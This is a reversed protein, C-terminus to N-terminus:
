SKVNITSRELNGIRDNLQQLEFKLKLIGESLQRDEAKKSLVFYIHQITQEFDSKTVKKM